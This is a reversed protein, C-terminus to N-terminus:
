PQDGDEGWHFLKREMQQWVLWEAKVIPLNHEHMVRALRLQFDSFYPLQEERPPVPWLAVLQMDYFDEPDFALALLEAYSEVLAYRASHFYDPQTSAVLLSGAIKGCLMIPVAVASEEWEDQYGPAANFEDSLRQNMEIHGSSVVHGALSEAGLLIAEPTLDHQWPSTGRGARVRLSRIMGEISPPMCSAVIVSIGLQQPDLQELAQQLILESLSSFRLMAPLYPLTHHVQRYFEAPITEPVMPQSEEKVGTLFGDFEEELLPLLQSRHQPLVALLRRLNHARPKSEGSMWRFLTVASVGLEKAVRQREQADALIYSLLERWTRPPKQM